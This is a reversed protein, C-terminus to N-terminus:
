MATSSAGHSNKQDRGPETRQKKRQHDACGESDSYRSAAPKKQEKKKKSKVSSLDVNDKLTIKPTQQQEHKPDHHNM